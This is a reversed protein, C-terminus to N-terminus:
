KPREMGMSTSRQGTRRGYLEELHRDLRELLATQGPYWFELHCNECAADLDDSAAWLQKADKKNAIEIVELGANRLAEIKANWLVPDAQRKAEIQAPSLEFAEDGSSNNEDGAPAFPRPIKLLYAGEALTVAGIRVREWDEDTRPETDVIKDKTIVTSVADFVNDAIPDITYRMLEKVSVVSKMDGWLAANSTAAPPPTSSSTSSSSCSLSFAALGLVAAFRVSSTRVPNLM